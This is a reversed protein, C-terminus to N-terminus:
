KNSEYLAKLGKKDQDSYEVNMSDLEKQYWKVSRKKADSDSTFLEHKEKDFDSENIVIFSNADDKIKVTDLRM